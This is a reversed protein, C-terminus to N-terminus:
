MYPMKKDMSKWYRQMRKRLVEERHREYYLQDDKRKANTRQQDTVYKKKRGM